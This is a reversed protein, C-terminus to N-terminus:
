GSAAPCIYEPKKNFLIRVQQHNPVKEKLGKATKTCKLPMTQNKCMYGSEGQWEFYLSEASVKNVYVPDNGVYTLTCNAFQGNETEKYDVRFEDLTMPSKEFGIRYTYATSCRLIALGLSASLFLSRM